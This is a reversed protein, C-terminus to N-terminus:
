VCRSTYLLCSHATAASNANTLTFNHIYSATGYAGGIIIAQGGATTDVNATAATGVFRCTDCSFISTANKTLVNISGVVKVGYTIGWVNLHSYGAGGTLGGVTVGDMDMIVATNSVSGVNISGYNSGHSWKSRQTTYNHEFSIDTPTTVTSTYLLCAVWM